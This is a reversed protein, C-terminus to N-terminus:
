MQYELDSVSFEHKFDDQRIHALEHEYAERQQTQDLRSNIVICYDGNENRSTFGKIRGPMDQYIVNVEEFGVLLKIM